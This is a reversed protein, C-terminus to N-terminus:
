FESLQTLFGCDRSRGIVGYQFGYGIWFLTFVIRYPKGAGFKGTEAGDRALRIESMNNDIIDRARADDLTFGELKVDRRKAIMACEVFINRDTNGFLDNLDGLRFPQTDASKEIRTAANGDIDEILGSYRRFAHENRIM